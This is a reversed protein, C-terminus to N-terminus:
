GAFKVPIEVDGASTTVTCTAEVTAHPDYLVEVCVEAGDTMLLPYTGPTACPSTDDISAGSITVWAADCGGGCLYAAGEIALRASSVGTFDWRGGTYAAAGYPTACADAEGTDTDGTATDGTEGGSDAGSNVSTDPPSDQGTETDSISDQASDTDGNSDTAGTDASGTDIPYCMGDSARGFGAACDPPSSTCALFALLM